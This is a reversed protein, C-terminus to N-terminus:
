EGEYSVMDAVVIAIPILILIVIILMGKIVLDAGTAFAYQLAYILVIFILAFAIGIFAKERAEFFKERLHERREKRTWKKAM